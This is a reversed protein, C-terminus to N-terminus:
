LDRTIQNRRHYIISIIGLVGIAASLAMVLLLNEQENKQPILEYSILVYTYTPFINDGFPEMKVYNKVDESFWFRICSGMKYEEVVYTDFTGAPVTITETSVVNRVWDEHSYYTGNIEGEEDLYSLTGHSTEGWEKGVTLPFDYLKWGPYYTTYYRCDPTEKTYTKLVVWDSTSWVTNADYVPSYYPSDQTLVYCSAGEFDEKRDITETHYSKGM